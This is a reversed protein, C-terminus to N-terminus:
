GLRELESESEGVRGFLYGSRDSLAEKIKEM